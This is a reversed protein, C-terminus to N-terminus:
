GTGTVKVGHGGVKTGCENKQRRQLALRVNADHQMSWSNLCKLLLFMKWSCTLALTTPIEVLSM